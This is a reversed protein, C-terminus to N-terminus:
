EFAGARDSIVLLRLMEESLKLGDGDGLLIGRSILKTVTERAWEPLNDDVYNYIAPNELEAIRESLRQNEAKLEEYQTMTLEDGIQNNEIGDAIAAAIREAGLRNYLETDEATDVFCVELLVAPSVTNRIVYLSSGDKIGRDAFGLAAVNEVIGVANATDKAGMTYAECGRGGGANFHISLFMDLRQANALACIRRLNELVTPANNDTCDVVTHGRETLLRMLSYGVARTEDSENIFGVAGSGVTGSLTHGCNIGIVM